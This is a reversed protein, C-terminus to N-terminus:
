NFLHACFQIPRLCHFPDLVEVVLNPRDDLLLVRFEPGLGGFRGVIERQIYKCISDFIIQDKHNKGIWEPSHCLEGGRVQPEM